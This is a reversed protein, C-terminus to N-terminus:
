VKTKKLAELADEINEFPGVVEGKRIAEDAEKEKEQWEKSFFWAQNRNILKKPKLVVNGDTIECEMFDGESIGLKERIKKPISV